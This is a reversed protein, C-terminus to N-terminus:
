ARRYTSTDLVARDKGAVVGAPETSLVHGHEIRILIDCHKLTTLRHAIIFATRGTFGTLDFIGWCGETSFSTAM